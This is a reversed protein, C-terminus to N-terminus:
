LRNEMLSAADRVVLTAADPIASERARRSMEEYESSDRLLGAVRAAVGRREDHAWGAESTWFGAGRVCYERANKTQHDGALDPLPVFLAPLGAAALEAITGAGARAIAFDAERYAGRMDDLYEVVSAEIAARGYAEAISGAGGRGAQHVVRLSLGALAICRLLDPARENLFSSGLSGGTVLVRIPREKPCQRGADGALSALDARIPTGTVVRKGVLGAFARDSGVYVRDVVRSLLRNALGPAVNAEHIATPIGLSRGALVAGASAYGGLGVVFSVGNAALHKRAQAVGVALNTMARAKGMASTGLIPSGSVIELRFGRPEVIRAEFGEESTGFFVVDFPQRWGRFAEGLALAPYVHGATGGCAIAICRRSVTAEETV